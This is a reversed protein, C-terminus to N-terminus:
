LLAGERFADDVQADTMGLAAALQLVLPFDRRVETSYEWRVRAEERQAPDPIAAIAADITALPIGHRICWVRLQTASIAAPPPPPLDKIADWAVALQEPTPQPQDYAWRKIFIGNGDSNDALTFAADPIEPYIHKIADYM